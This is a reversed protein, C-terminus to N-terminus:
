VLFLYGSPGAGEIKVWGLNTSVLWRLAPEPEPGSGGGARPQRRAWKGESFGAAML